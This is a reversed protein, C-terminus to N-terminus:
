QLSESSLNGLSIYREYPLINLMLAFDIDLVTLFAAACSRRPREWLALCQQAACGCESSVSSLPVWPGVECHEGM